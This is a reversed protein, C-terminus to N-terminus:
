SGALVLQESLREATGGDSTGSEGNPNKLLRARRLLRACVSQLELFEAKNIGPRAVWVLDWGPVVMDWQLRVAESIRRRARNREVANGIRRSVTFGCRSFAEQNPLCCLVLLSHTYSKGAQRVQRFRAKDRLSYRRNL